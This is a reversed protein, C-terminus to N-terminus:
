ADAEDEDDLGFSVDEFHSVEIYGPITSARVLRSEFAV